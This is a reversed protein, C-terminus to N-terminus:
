QLRLLAGKFFLALRAGSRLPSSLRFGRGGRSSALARGPLFGRPKAALDVLYVRGLVGPLARGGTASGRVVVRFAETELRARLTVPQPRVVIRVGARAPAFPGPEVAAVEVSGTRTLIPRLTVRGAADTTGSVAAAHVRSQAIPVGGQSSLTVEIPAPEGFRVGRPARLTMRPPRGVGLVSPAGRPVYALRGGAGAAIAAADVRVVTAAGAHELLLTGGRRRAVLTDGASAIDVPEPGGVAVPLWSGASLRDLSRVVPAPAVRGIGSVPQGVRVTLAVPLGAGDLAVRLSAVTEGLLLPGGPLAAQTWAGAAATRVFILPRDGDLGAVAAGGAGLALSPRAGERATGMPPEAVWAGTADPRRLAIEGGCGIALVGPSGATDVALAAARVASGALDLSSWVGSADRILLGIGSCGYGARALVLVRGAADIALGEIVMGQSVPVAEPAAGVAVGTADPVAVVMRVGSVRPYLAAARGDAGMAVLATTVARGPELRVTGDALAPSAAALAAVIAALAARGDLRM